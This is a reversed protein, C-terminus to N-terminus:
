PKRRALESAMMNVMTLPHGGSAKAMGRVTPLPLELGHSRSCGEFFEQVYALPLSNLVLVLGADLCGRLRALQEDPLFRETIAIFQFGSCFKWYRLLDLKPNTLAAINDLVVVIKRNGDKFRAIVHRLTKYRPPKRNRSKNHFLEESLHRCTEGPTGSFDAFLFRWENKATDAVYRVLRTRGIGYKGSVIVDEGGALCKQIAAIEKRRGVFRAGM